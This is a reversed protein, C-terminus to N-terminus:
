SHTNKDKPMWCEILMRGKTAQLIDPQVVYKWMIEYISRNESFQQPIYFTNQNERCSEDSINRLLFFDPM